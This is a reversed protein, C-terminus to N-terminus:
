LGRAIERRVLFPGPDLRDAVSQSEGLVVVAGLRTFHTVVDARTIEAAFAKTFRDAVVPADFRHVPHQVHVKTFVVAAGAFSGRAVIQAPQSTKRDGEELTM